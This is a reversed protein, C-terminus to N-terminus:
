AVLQLDRPPQDIIERLKAAVADLVEQKESARKSRVYIGTVTPVAEDGKERRHDLCLAIQDDPFGLDGALTAATRRLDHPTWQKM